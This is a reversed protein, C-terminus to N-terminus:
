NEKDIIEFNYNETDNCNFGRLNGNEIVKKIEDLSTIFDGNQSNIEIKLTKM